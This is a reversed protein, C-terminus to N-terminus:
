ACYVVIEKAIEKNNPPRVRIVVNIKESKLVDDITTLPTAGGGDGSSADVAVVKKSNSKTLAPAVEIKKTEKKSGKKDKSM